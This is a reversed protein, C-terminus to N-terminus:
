KPLGPCVLDFERTADEGAKLALGKIQVQEIFKKGEPRVNILMKDKGNKVEVNMTVNQSLIQAIAAMSPDSNNGLESLNLRCPVDGEKEFEVRITLTYKGSMVRDFSFNGDADTRTEQSNDRKESKKEDTLVVQVNPFSQKASELQLHLLHNNSSYRM